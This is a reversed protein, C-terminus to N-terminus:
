FSLTTTLKWSRGDQIRWNAFTGDPNARVPILENEGFINFVNLQISWDYRDEFLKTRYRFWFDWRDQSPAEIPRSLDARVAGNEDFFRPFGITAGTEYRYAGGVGIGNMWGDRFTYNALANVRWEVLEPAPQGNLQDVVGFQLWNETLWFDAMTDNLTDFGSRMGGATTQTGDPNFMANQIFEYIARTAAGPVNTRVAESKSANITIRFQDTPNATFEFEYGTSVSDETNVFGTSLRTDRTMPAWTSEILWSDIFTPFATQFDREFQRWAPGFINEQDDISWTRETNTEWDERFTGDEIDNILERPNLTLFQAFRFNGNPIQISTSNLVATEYDVIRLSYRNDKTSLLIGWEETAGQPSELFAGFANRRGATPNFNEGENYSISVNVPLIDKLFFVRDLHLVASTSRSQVKLADRVADPNALNFIDPSINARNLPPAFAPARMEVSDSTDERWGYTGVLAGGFLYGQWTLITSEVENERLTANRTARNFDDENGSLADIIEFSDTTWGVYNAPNAAQEWVEGNPNVWPDAPNVGPANWTTDFYQLAIDGGRPIVFDSINSLNLNDASSANLLSPGVYHRVSVRSRNNFLNINPALNILEDSYVHRQFSRNDTYTTDESYAANFIHRGLLKRWWSNGTDKLTFDHEFYASARFGEIDTWRIRNAGFTSEQLFPRGFFPNPDGKIDEEQVDVFIRAIDSLYTTQGREVMEKYFSLEYGLKQNLFTNALVIRYIEFDAWEQKNPGDLLKNYFDYTTPNAIQPPIFSDGFPHGAGVLFADLTQVQNDLFASGLGFLRRGAQPNGTWITGDPNTAGFVMARGVRWFQTDDAINLRAGFADFWNTLGDPIDRNIVDLRSMGAHDPFHTFAPVVGDTFGNYNSGEPLTMPNTTVPEIWPTLNDLPPATRPRNADQTGHEFDASLEFSMGNRNLMKPKYKMTVYIREDDDFAPEQRYNTNDSLLAVRAALQDPILIRNYDLTARFSRFQDYSLSVQGANRLFNASDTSANVVGGPSGLGFLISNQGRLLDIRNVNYGDWSVSTRFYNRTNDANTLGRVRTNTNPAFHIGAESTQGWSGTNPANQYNGLVGGVEFNTTYALVSQNDTGGIDNLFEETLVSVSTGIDRLETRLRTGALTSTAMYGSDESGEVTFPSLEQIEEEEEGTQGSLPGLALMLCVPLVLPRRHTLKYLMGCTNM